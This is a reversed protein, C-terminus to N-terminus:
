LKWGVAESASPSGSVKATALRGLQAEKLVVVPRRLPVGVELMAPREKVPMVMETESPVSLAASGAKVMVTAAGLVAGTMEPEGAVGTTAPM